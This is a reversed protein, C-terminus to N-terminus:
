QGAGLAERSVWVPVGLLTQLWVAPSGNCPKNVDSSSLTALEVKERVKWRKAEPICM